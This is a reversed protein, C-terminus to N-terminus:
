DWCRSRTRTTVVPPSGRGVPTTWVRTFVTSITLKKANPPAGDAAPTTGGMGDAWRGPGTACRGSRPAVAPAVGVPQTTHLRARGGEALGAAPGM